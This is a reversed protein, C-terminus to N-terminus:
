SATIACIQTDFRSAPPGRLKPTLARHRDRRWANLFRLLLDLPILCLMLLIFAVPMAQRPPINSVVVGAGILYVGVALAWVGLSRRYLPLLSLVFGAALLFGLPTLGWSIGESSGARVHTFPLAATVQNLAASLAPLPPAHLRGLARDKLVSFDPDPEKSEIGFVKKLTRFRKPKKQYDEYTSALRRPDDVSPDLYRSKPWISLLYITRQYGIHAITVPEALFAELVMARYAKLMRGRDSGLAHWTPRRSRDEDGPNQVLMKQEGGDVQYYRDVNKRAFEILEAAERKLEPEVPSEIQLAPFATVMLHGWGQAATGMSLLLPVLFAFSLLHAIRLHRWLGSVLFGLALGPLLLRTVPKLLLLCSFAAFFAWWRYNVPDHGKELSDTWSTWGAMTWATSWFLFATVHAYHEAALAPPMIAFLCTVPIVFWRWYGFSKRVVYAVAIISVIGAVRQAAHIWVLSAGPLYFTPLVLAPYIWRRKEPFDFDGDFYVSSPFAFYSFSDTGYLAFPVKYFLLLRIAAALLLAPLAWLLADRLAPRNIFIRNGQLRLLDLM